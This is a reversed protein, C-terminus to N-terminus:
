NEFIFSFNTDIHLNDFSANEGLPSYIMDPNKIDVEFHYLNDDIRTLFVKEKTLDFLYYTESTALSVDWYLYKILDIKKNKELSLPDFKENNFCFYIKKDGSSVKIYTDCSNKKFIFSAEVKTEGLNENNLIMYVVWDNVLQFIM